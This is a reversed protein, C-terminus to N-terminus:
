KKILIIFRQYKWAKIFLNKEVKRNPSGDNIGPDHIYVNNEDIGTLVVFHGAYGPKNNIMRSNILLIITYNEKFYKEIDNFSLEKLEYINEKIMKKANEIESEIDSMEITKESIEKDYKKRIYNAGNKIFDNYDFNSYFNVKLGMKKIDILAACCWTWKDEAKNSIQDLENYSFDKEPFFHKLVMKLCAQFCHTDDSQKFYPM